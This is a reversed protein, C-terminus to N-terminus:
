RGGPLRQQVVHALEHALLRRGQATRPQHRGAAFVIHEGGVTLARAALSGAAASAAADDHVRVAGFDHGFRAEMTRRTEPDLRRGGGAVVRDLRAAAAPTAPDHEPGAAAPDADRQVPQEDKKKDAAPEPVPAEAPKPTEGTRLPLLYPKLRLAQQAVVYDMVWQDEAAKDKSDRFREADARLRATDAAVADKAPAAAPKSGSFSFSIGVFTPANVPGQITLTASADYGGITGVPIAPIPAPLPEKALALGTLAAAGVGVAAVKGGPTELAGLVAKVEPTDKVKEIVQKGVPTAALAKVVDGASGEKPKKDEEPGDRHVAHAPVREFSWGRVSGGGAVVDAARHAQTEAADRPHSVAYAPAAASPTRQRRLHTGTM